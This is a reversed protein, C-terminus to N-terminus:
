HRVDDIGPRIQRHKLGLSPSPQRGKAPRPRQVAGAKAGYGVDNGVINKGASYGSDYNPSV